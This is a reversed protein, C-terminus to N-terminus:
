VRSQMGLKTIMKNFVDPKLPKTFIDALNEETRCHVLEVNKDNVQERLFHYKINIHKSRSHSVPNKALSIASKNDVYITVPDEKALNLEGLIYGLWMAQCACAAAAIYEAECTSLAVTQQKKSSWSFIASGIHFAYGSTSKGDDLDGGYDSDSYGVLKSNQSHTYFLGYNLTGKIYRLIRKAAMFHDQKPKEMYRSVLGVAYMIDPRTFTLYRLSGVLSKFLTPNVSERTSDIRLKISAEAPTSVSKCEEMRFKKLIQEAYKKQCMFIGDKSQKVEVGLFYSMQGIDTMEFENTMVKKFDDFMGPNNGTFIMDDVYLCVIMIDGGSNTKTYLAHEYPSKVFGNKQFYEDVRTNWARPAQKLGYLAKKLRYVKDEKGKQVYGPPQEIYVEEELYGNLFASKVDMQFIKWQNQAAIATLLRITDVRAVPAFVEDYDIGYRQKYGKAVLRAKYKEVEGDQNTKTKYVWKVGIAKHGEPLDTLEWTDNKKIAGIEEDMAKNWKSEESAEEFTVPDCEAMLCFLSYDFTTQVPSTAEYIDDLSRMKRTAGGSSRSGSSDSPTSAPTQQNPSQPPTQDDDEDGEINPDENGDDDDDNFFLGAVKREEESWRWYDSEDFEVDRSIILKKTLPNYLRYAKSRKDYGTFICKDGKDDLKKRKQEPVHAYAICGFIRLHGVSPKSGSWAENPTKNRVSKTPCRNLLYVACLVAEAWFTRPLHKAKVMSRAMDLITRNKREAVGNQQPTYATTLQHNIGHARCFSRFLNSTYEGGRDSRLVKLYHGSQKEALAKFEKFKDLAESKEKIIYVWSKRSFDDIFTLYYRNGGLSSIDFPGAIDTHVIELPRRARWSKGVPFSQRHQKGKVCAECLNESENIEPLGDVMKTKSLLKLGSFGLHGYRLHWLWSDNKIVSKLCKQVKTQMDLTFLRNNSMEVNAILEQAKNKIILSNDQMQINYGKEVLQGLSIINNKLAPIYYVDNIYKKEGKKTMITVTGKGKVPIKSSDGFTVEGSITDDIETFLEKHGTMHNSAGSDLYWTNKKGGEDGKYTLFMASGVDKDEKAEAFHSREEVKPARCEYSFHGYKNCNYCQYQSKDRRQFGGRGRGRFNQGRGSPQYGESNQGRNYSQRGRGRGGRYGGRFGGRGRASSSSSDGISVKSQLAKELHSADDYQNMRQEHAQLSGVLEDISITSLDKSEEISTVVYDFKGLGTGKPILNPFSGSNIFALLNSISPSILLFFSSNLSTFSSRSLYLCLVLVCIM